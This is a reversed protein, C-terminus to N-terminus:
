THVRLIPFYTPPSTFPAPFKTGTVIPYTAARDQGVRPFDPLTNSSSQVPIRSIWWGATPDDSQSVAIDYNNTSTTCGGLPCDTDVSTVIFRHNYWDYLARPGFVFTGAPLGFFSVLDKPGLLPAGASNWVSLCANVM